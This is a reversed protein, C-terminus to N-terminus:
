SRALSPRDRLASKVWSLWGAPPVGYPRFKEVRGEEESVFLARYMGLKAAAPSDILNSSDAVSMQFVVRMSLERMAQRDFARNLNNLTDCWVLVHIGLVPGERLIAALQKDPTAPKDDGRGMLGFDDEARRLDRMRQVGHLVLYLSPADADPSAQRRELEAHLETMVEALERTGALRMPEPLADRLEPLIGQKPADGTHGDIVTFRPLTPGSVEHAAREHAALGVLGTVLMGLASEAQQGVIVLNSGNQRRFTASTLEDIAMAEGLWAHEVGPALSDPAAPSTLLRTLLHNKSPDAAANGEFVVMPPRPKTPKQAALEQMRSLYNERQDDGLWVVQFPNNGEVRGNADNYIAEGPRSLLRAASNDDSLILHADAESCQLAIRVAMQDITSRALSYAGGITQSGLLVHIGFARGQRVLRDLLRAAEQALKDDETFFEQFEDVILLVRPLRADPVEERYANLDQVNAKRFLEGRSAIEADLRQLVSLGFERESEIAVVRAHPLDHTTYVKFEVGKKFDVLYLEVEDPSYMLGLNVILAHLLTSKGSGTKGAVLVHQSTGRGLELLQRRTAGARGLPVALGKRSVSAWLQDTPPSIFEFPVEVRQAAKAGEGVLHLIRNAFADDPPPDLTLDHRGFDDDRWRFRGAEWDLNIAHNAIDALDFGKPLQQRHDVSAVVSIGCRPGSQAISVLRRIAEVTFNAPFNAVVLVRYPEAVEGAEANYEAITPYRNRLYKQIVNEMHGTLDALRQEIHNAETWIRSGVLKEDFDALNMFAGFDQGLGVPDVILFRVRGPAMSTLMRMLVARMAALAQERGGDNTHFLLSTPEAFPCLAPLTLDTTPAAPRGDRWPEAEVVPRTAVHYSGFRFVDPAQPAAPPRWDAWSPHDWAPFLRASETAVEDATALARGLAAKWDRLREQWQQQHRAVSEDRRAVIAALAERLRTQFREDIQALAKQYAQEVAQADAARRKEAAQRESELRHDLSAQGITRQYAQDEIAQRHRAQATAREQEYRQEAAATALRHATRAKDLVDDRAAEADAVAQALPLYLQAVQKRAMVRALAQVAFGLGVSLVAAAAGGLGIVVALSDRGLLPALLLGLPYILLVGALFVLGFLRGGKLFPLVRLRRLRDALGEAEEVCADLTRTPAAPRPPAEPVALDHEEILDAASQRLSELREMRSAVAETEERLCMDADAKGGELIAEATWLAEKVAADAAQKDQELKNKLEWSAKGHKKTAAEVEAAFRAAVAERRGRIEEDLEEVRKARRQDHRLRNDEEELRAQETEAHYSAALAPEVRGREDAVRAFDRLM